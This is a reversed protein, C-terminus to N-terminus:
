VRSGREGGRNQRVFTYRSIWMCVAGCFVMVQESSDSLSVNDSPRVASVGCFIIAHHWAYDGSNANMLAGEIPTGVLLAVGTISFALGM